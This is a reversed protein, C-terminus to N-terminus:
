ELANPWGANHWQNLNIIKIKGTSNVRQTKDVGIENGYFLRLVM